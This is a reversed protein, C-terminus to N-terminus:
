LCTMANSEKHSIFVSLICTSIHTALPIHNDLLFPSSLHLAFVIHHLIPPYYLLTSISLPFFHAYTDCSTTSLVQEVPDPGFEIAGVARFRDLMKSKSRRVRLRVLGRELEPPSPKRPPRDVTTTPISVCYPPSM